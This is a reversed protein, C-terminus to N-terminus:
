EQFPRIFKKLDNLSEMLIYYGETRVETTYKYSM